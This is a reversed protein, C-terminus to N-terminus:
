KLGNEILRIASDMKRVRGPVKITAKGFGGLLDRGRDAAAVKGGIQNALSRFPATDKM